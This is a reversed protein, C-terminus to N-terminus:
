KDSTRPTAINLTHIKEGFYSKRASIRASLPGEPLRNFSDEDICFEFLIYKVESIKLQYRCAKRGSGRKKEAAAPRSIEDGAAATYLMPVTAAIDLWLLCIFFALCLPAMLWRKLPGYTLWPGAPRWLGRSHLIRLWIGAAASLLLSIYLAIEQWDPTPVFSRFFMPVAAGIIVLLFVSILYKQARSSGKNFFWSSRNFKM